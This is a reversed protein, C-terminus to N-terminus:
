YKGPSTALQTTSRSLGSSSSGITSSAAMSAGGLHELQLNFLYNKKLGELRADDREYIVLRLDSKGWFRELNIEFPHLIKWRALDISRASYSLIYTDKTNWYDSEDDDDDDENGNYKGVKHTYMATQVPFSIHPLEEKSGGFSYSMQGGGTRNLLRLVLDSIKRTATSLKMKPDTLEGGVFIQNKRMNKKFKGQLQFYYTTDPAESQIHSPIKHIYNPDHHSHLPRLLITIHGKFFDNEIPIPENANLQFPHMQNTDNNILLHTRLSPFHAAPQKTEQQQQQEHDEESLIQFNMIGREFIQKGFKHLRQGIHSHNAAEIREAIVQQWRQFDDDTATTSPMAYSLSTENLITHALLLSAASVSVAM